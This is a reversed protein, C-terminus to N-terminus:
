RAAPDQGPDDTSTPSSDIPKDLDTRASRRGVLYGLGGILAVRALPRRLLVRRALPRRFPFRRLFM